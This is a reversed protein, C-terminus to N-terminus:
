RAMELIFIECNIMEFRPNPPDGSLIPPLPPVPPGFLEWLLSNRDDPELPENFMKQYRPAETQAVLGITHTGPALYITIDIQFGIAKGSFGGEMNTGSNFSDQDGCVSEPVVTGNLKIATKVYGYRQYGFLCRMHDPFASGASVLNPDNPDERPDIIQGGAVIRFLGGDESIIQKKIWQAAPISENPGFIDVWSRNTGVLQVRTVPEPGTSGAQGLRFDAADVPIAQRGFITRWAIDNDMDTFPNLEGQINDAINHENLSGMEEVVPFFGDNTDRINQSQEAKPIRRPFKYAM